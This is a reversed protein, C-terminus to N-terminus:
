PEVESYLYVHDFLLEGESYLNVYDFLQKRGEDDGFVGRVVGRNQVAIKFHRSYQDSPPVRRYFREAREYDGIAFSANGIKLLMEPPVVLGAHILSELSDAISRFGAPPRTLNHIDEVTLAPPLYKISDLLRHYELQLDYFEQQVSDLQDEKDKYLEVPVEQIPEPALPSTLGEIALKVMVTTVSVLVAVLIPLIAYRFVPKKWWPDPRKKFYLLM